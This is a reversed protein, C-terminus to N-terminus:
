GSLPQSNQLVRILEEVKIPKSVYDDMGSALYSERDGMLANATVAVIRPQQQPELERRIQQTAQIGDMEPMQIDMLILDYLQNALAQVAEVGNTAVDASYGLRELMRLAVKRNILNDEALLIRLPHDIGLSNNFRSQASSTIRAQPTSGTKNFATHLSQHLQALRYPQNLTSHRIKNQPLSIQQGLPTLLILESNPVAEQVAQLIEGNENKLILYDLLLLDFAPQHNQLLELYKQATGACMVQAGWRHLYHSLVGQSTMNPHGLLVRKGLFPQSITHGNTTEGPLTNVQITFQFVTGQNPQSELWIKGGMLEVLRKSIALGLGTGGFKRTTSSDIQRFPEFLYKQRDQPIGIGTDRIQFSLEYTDATAHGGVWLNVEGQSTFKVANGLLNVLIQRLRLIDGQVIQPLNPEIYSHLYLNKAAAQAALLDTAEEVCERLIFPENEMELKGSDIKSYDLIDNIIDLLGAGSNRTTTVFDEQEATLPTDLLLSTMGIVANLPTRIEHSMSALFDSKARDAEEAAIKAIKLENEFKKRETIDNAVCVMRCNSTGADKEQMIATSVATFIIRGDKAVMRMEKDRMMFRSSDSKSGPPQWLQRDEPALIMQLPQGLLDTEDYGLLHVVAQNIKEIRTDPTIVFLMDQMAEIINDVYTKSVTTRKLTLLASNLLLYGKDISSIASHLLAGSICLAALVIGMDTFHIPPMDTNELLGITELHYLVIITLVSIFLYRHLIRTGLLLGSIILLIIFAAGNINRLGGYFWANILLGIYFNFTLLHSADNLRKKQLLYLSGLTLCSVVTFITLSLWWEQQFFYVFLICVFFTGVLFILNMAWVLRATRTNEPDTFQPSRLSTRLDQLM